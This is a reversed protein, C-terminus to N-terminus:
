DLALMTQFIYSRYLPITKASNRLMLQIATLGYSKRNFYFLAISIPANSRAARACTRCLTLLYDPTVRYGIFRSISVGRSRKDVPQNM